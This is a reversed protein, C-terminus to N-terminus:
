ASVTVIEFLSDYDGVGRLSRLFPNLCVTCPWPQEARVAARLERLAGAERGLGGLVIARYVYPPRERPARAEIAALAALAGKADGLRARAYAAAAVYTARPEEAILAEFLELAESHAGTEALIAALHFRAPVYDPDAGLISRLHAQASEGRGAEYLALGLTTQLALSAPERLLGDAATAAAVEPRRELLALWAVNQYASACQTDRGIAAEFLSRARVADRHAFLMLDGEAAYVEALDPDLDRARALALKAGAFATREDEIAYEAALLRAYAIGAYARAFRPDHALAADFCALATDLSSRTRRSLHRQGRAYWGVADIDVARRPTSRCLEAITRELAAVVLARMRYFSRESLHLEEAAVKGPEGRMDCLEVLRRCRPDYDHLARELLTLVAERPSAAGIARALENALSDAYLENPRRIGRLLRRVQVSSAM